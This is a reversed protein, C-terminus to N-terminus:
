CRRSECPHAERRCGENKIPLVVGRRALGPLLRLSRRRLVGSHDANQPGRDGPSADPGTRSPSNSPYPSLGAPPAKEEYREARSARPLAHRCGRGLKSTIASLGSSRPRSGPWRAGSTSRMRILSPRGGARNGRRIFGRRTRRRLLESQRLSEERPAPRSRPGAEPQLAPTRRRGGIQPRRASSNRPIRPSSTVNSRADYPFRCNGIRAGLTHPRDRCCRALVM